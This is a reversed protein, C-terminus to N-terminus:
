KVSAYIGEERLAETFTDRAQLDHPHRGWDDRHRDSHSKPHALEWGNNQNMWGSLKTEESALAGDIERYHTLFHPETVTDFRWPQEVCYAKFQIVATGYHRTEIVRLKFYKKFEEKLTSKEWDKESVNKLCHDHADNFFKDGNPMTIISGPSQAVKWKRLSAKVLFSHEPSYARSQVHPLLALFQHGVSSRMIDERVCFSRVWGAQIPQDLKKSPTDRVLDWIEKLRRSKKRAEREIPTLKNM